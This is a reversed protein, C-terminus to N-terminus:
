GIGSQDKIIAKNELIREVVTRIDESADTEPFLQIFPKQLNISKRVHQDFTIYGTIGISFNLFHDLVLSLRQYVDSVEAESSVMNMLLKIDIDKKISDLIKVMAYSDSISTPESTTVLFVEDARTAFDLTLPSLGAATDLIVYDYKLKLQYLAEIFSTKITEDIDKWIRNGSANPLIDIGTEHQCIINEIPLNDFIYNILNKKPNMGLLVDVNALNTDADVVLVQKNERVLAIGLNVAINTKGVGGKGSTVAIVKSDSSTKSEVLQRIRNLQNVM